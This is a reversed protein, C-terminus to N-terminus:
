YWVMKDFIPAKSKANAEVPVLSLDIDLCDDKTPPCLGSETDWGMAIFLPSAGSKAYQEGVSVCRYKQLVPTLWQVSIQIPWNTTTEQARAEAQSQQVGLQETASEQLYGGGGGYGGGGRYGGGTTGYDRDTDVEKSSRVYQPLVPTATFLADIDMISPRELVASVMVSTAMGVRKFDASPDKLKLKPNYRFKTPSGKQYYGDPM